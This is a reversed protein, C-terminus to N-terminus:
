CYSSGYEYDFLYQNLENQDAYNLTFQRTNKIVQIEVATVYYNELHKVNLIKMYVTYVISDCFM